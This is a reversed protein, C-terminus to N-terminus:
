VGFNKKTKFTFTPYVLHPYFPAYMGIYANACAPNPEQKKEREEKEFLM